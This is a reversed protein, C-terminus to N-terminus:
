GEALAREEATMEDSVTVRKRGKCLPCGDKDSACSCPAEHTTAGAVLREDKYLEVIEQLAEGEGISLERCLADFPLVLYGSETALGYLARTPGVREMREKVEDYDWSGLARHAIELLGQQHRAPLKGVYHMELVMNRHGKSRMHEALKVM